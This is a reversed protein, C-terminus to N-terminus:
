NNNLLQEIESNTLAEAGLDEFSKDGELEVGNIAPRNELDEYNTTGPEGKEGKEGQEGPQGPEGKEGQPGQQGRPGGIGTSTVNVGSSVTTQIDLNDLNVEENIAM